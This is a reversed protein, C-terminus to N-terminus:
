KLRTAIYSNTKSNFYHTWPSVGKVRVAQDPFAKMIAKALAKKYDSPPYMTGTHKVLFDVLIRLMCQRESETLKALSRSSYEKLIRGGEKDARLIGLM